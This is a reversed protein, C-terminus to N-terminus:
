SHQLAQQISHEGVRVSVCTSSGPASRYKKLTGPVELSCGGSWAHSSSYRCPRIGAPGQIGFPHEWPLTFKEDPVHWLRRPRYHDPPCKTTTSDNLLTQRKAVGPSSCMLSGHGEGDGLAQEFERENLQHHWGVM